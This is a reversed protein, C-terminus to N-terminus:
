DCTLNYGCIKLSYKEATNMIFEIFQNNDTRIDWFVSQNDTRMHISSVQLKLDSTYALTPGGSDGRCAFTPESDDNSILFREIRDERGPERIKVLTESLQGTCGYGLAIMKQSHESTFNVTLPIVDITEKTIGIALDLKQRELIEITNTAHSVLTFKYIKKGIQFSGTQGEPVYHENKDNKEFACHSNTLITQPGVIVASCYTKKDSNIRNVEIQVVAPYKEQPVIVGGGIHRFVSNGQALGQSCFAGLLIVFIIRM